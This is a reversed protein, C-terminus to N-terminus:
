KRVALQAEDLVIGPRRAARIQFEPLRQREEALVRTRSVGAEVEAARLSSPCPSERLEARADDADVLNADVTTTSFRHHARTPRFAGNCAARRARSRCTTM